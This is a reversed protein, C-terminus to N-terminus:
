SFAFVVLKWLLRAVVVAAFMYIFGLCVVMFSKEIVNDDSNNDHWM